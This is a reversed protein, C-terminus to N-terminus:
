LIELLCVEWRTPTRIVEAESIRDLVRVCFFTPLTHPLGQSERLSQNRREESKNGYMKLEKPLDELPQPASWPQQNKFFTSEGFNEMKRLDEFNRKFKREDEDVEFYKM